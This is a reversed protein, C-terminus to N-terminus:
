PTEALTTVDQGATSEQTATTEQTTPTPEPQRYEHKKFGIIALPPLTLVISHSKGQWATWEAHQGGYNGMNAGGYVEADTNLIEEYWGEGPVGIRYHHRPVPTANVVFVLPAGYAAKRIFALVCNESDHFDIWEFGQWTDDLEFFAPETKYLHNLHEVLRRLGAHM